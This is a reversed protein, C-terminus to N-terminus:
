RSNWRAVNALIAVDLARHATDVADKVERGDRAGRTGGVAALLGERDVVIAGLVDEDPRPFQADVVEHEGGRAVDVAARGARVDIFLNVGVRNL